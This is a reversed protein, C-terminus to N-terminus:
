PALFHRVFSGAIRGLALVWSLFACRFATRAATRRTPLPFSPHLPSCRLSGTWGTAAPARSAFILNSFQRVSFARVEPENRRFGESNVFAERVMHGGDDLRDTIIWEGMIDKHKDICQEEASLALVLGTRCLLAGLFGM